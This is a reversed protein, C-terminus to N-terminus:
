LLNEVKPLVIWNGLTKDWESPTFEEFGSGPYLTIEGFYTKGNIEYFDIRAFPIDKSLKEALKIMEEHNHPKPIETSSAPYHRIFPMRNWKNDFFTVKLGDKSFRESCVFSCQVTGNFCMYKYDKLEKGTEDVLYPEALIKRPVDKYPWERGVYYYNRKLSKDIKRKAAKINFLKKNNCIVIGGSDHTCKLVFQNPLKSFDIEDFANWVGLTPIIYEDGIIDAVFKKVEFKDVMRIYDPKRDYLKLWQLKENFTKPSKWHIPYGFTNKFKKELFRKDTLFPFLGQTSLYLLFNSPHKIYKKLDM